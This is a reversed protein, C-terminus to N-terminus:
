CADTIGVCRLLDNGGGLPGDPNGHSVIETLRSCFGCQLRPRDATESIVHFDKVYENGCGLVRSTVYSCADVPANSGQM